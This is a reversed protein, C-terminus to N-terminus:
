TQRACFESEHQPGEEPRREGGRGCPPVVMPQRRWRWRMTLSSSPEAVQRLMRNFEKPKSNSGTKDRLM